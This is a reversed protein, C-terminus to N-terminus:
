PSARRGVCSTLQACGTSIRRSVRSRSTPRSGSFFLITPSISFATNGCHSRSFFSSARRRYPWRAARCCAPPLASSSQASGTPIPRSNRRRTIFGGVAWISIFFFMTGARFIMETNDGIFGTVRNMSRLLPAGLQTWEILCGWMLALVSLGILFEFDPCLVNELGRPQGAINYACFWKVHASATGALLCNVIVAHSISERRPLRLHLWSM